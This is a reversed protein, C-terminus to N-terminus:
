DGCMSSMDPPMPREKHMDTLIRSHFTSRSLVFTTCTLRADLLSVLKFRRCSRNLGEAVSVM